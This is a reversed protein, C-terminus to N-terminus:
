CSHTSFVCFDLLLLGSLGFSSYILTFFMLLLLLNHYTSSIFSHILSIFLYIFPSLFATVCSNWNFFNPNSHHFYFMVMQFIGCLLSKTSLINPLKWAHYFKFVLYVTFSKKTHKNHISLNINTCWCLKEFYPSLNELMYTM